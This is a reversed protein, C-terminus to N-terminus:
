RSKRDSQMSWHVNGSTAATRLVLLALVIVAIIIATRYDLMEFAVFSEFLVVIGGIFLSAAIIWPAVPPFAILRFRALALATMWTVLLFLLSTDAGRILISTFDMFKTGDGAIGHLTAATFAHLLRGLMAFAAISLVASWAIDLRRRFVALVALAVCGYWPAATLAAAL